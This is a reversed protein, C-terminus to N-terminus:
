YRGRVQRAPRVISPRDDAAELHDALIFAAEFTLKVEQLILKDKSRLWEPWYANINSVCQEIGDTLEAQSLRAARTEFKPSNPTQTKHRRIKM